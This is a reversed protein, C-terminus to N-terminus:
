HFQGKVQNFKIAMQLGAASKVFRRQARSAVVGALYSYIVLIFRIRIGIGAM